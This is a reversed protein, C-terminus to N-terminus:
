AEKTMVDIGAAKNGDMGEHCEKLLGKNVMHGISTFVMEPKEVSLQSIKELKTEMIEKVGTHSYHKRKSIAKYLLVLPSVPGRPKGGTSKAVKVPVIRRDSQRHM